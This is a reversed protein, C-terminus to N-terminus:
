DVIRTCVNNTKQHVSQWFISFNTWVRVFNLVVSATNTVNGAKSIVLWNNSPELWFYNSWDNISSNTTEGKSTLYIRREFYTQSFLIYKWTKVPLKFMVPRTCYVPLKGTSKSVFFTLKLMFLYTNEFIKWILSLKWDSFLKKCLKVYFLWVGKAGWKKHRVWCFVTKRDRCKRM